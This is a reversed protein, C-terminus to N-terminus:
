SYNLIVPLDFVIWQVAYIYKVQHLLPTFLYIDSVQCAKEGELVANLIVNSYSLNMRIQSSISKFIRCMERGEAQWNQGDPCLWLVNDLVHHSLTCSCNQVCYSWDWNCICKTRTLKLSANVWCVLILHNDHKYLISFVQFHM